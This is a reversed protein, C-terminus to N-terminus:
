YSSGFSSHLRTMMDSDNGICLDWLHYFLFTLYGLYEGLDILTSEYCSFKCSLIDHEPIACSPLTNKPM